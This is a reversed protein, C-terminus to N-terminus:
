FGVQETYVTVQKALDFIYGIDPLPTFHCYKSASVGGASHLGIAGM